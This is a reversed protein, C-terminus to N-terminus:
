GDHGRTTAILERLAHIAGLLIAALAVTPDITM